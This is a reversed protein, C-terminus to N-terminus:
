RWNTAAKEVVYNSVAVIEEDTLRDGYAPMNGKGETVLSIVAELSDVQNRKLAKAKLTKGRRIINGGQPHCGACNATFLTTGEGNDALVHHPNVLIVAIAIFCFCFFKKWM